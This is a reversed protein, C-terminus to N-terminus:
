YSFSVEHTREGEETNQSQAAVKAISDQVRKQNQKILLELTSPGKLKKKPPLPPLLGSLGASTAKGSAVGSAEEVHEDVGSEEEVRKDDGGEEQDDEDEGASEEDGEDIQGAMKEELLRLKECLEEKAAEQAAKVEQRRQKEAQVEASSRWTGKQDPVGPHRNQNGKRTSMTKEPRPVVKKM